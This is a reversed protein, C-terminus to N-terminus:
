GPWREGIDGERRDREEEMKVMSTEIPTRTAYSLIEREALTFQPMTSYRAWKKEAILCM